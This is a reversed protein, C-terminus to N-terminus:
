ATVLHALAERLKEKAGKTTKNGTWLVDRKLLPNNGRAERMGPNMHLGDSPDMGCWFRAYVYQQQKPTLSRFAALIEGHHYALEVNALPDIAWLLSEFPNGGDSERVADMSIGFKVEPRGSQSAKGTLSSKGINLSKLHDKTRHLTYRVRNEPTECELAVYTKWLFIRGEQVYDEFATNGKWSPVVQRVASRLWPEWEQLFDQTLSQQGATGFEDNIM